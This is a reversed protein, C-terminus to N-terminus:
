VLGLAKYRKYTMELEKRVVAAMKFSGENELRLCYAQLRIIYQM